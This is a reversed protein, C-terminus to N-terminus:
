PHAITVIRVSYLGCEAGKAGAAPPCAAPGLSPNCGHRATAEPSAQGDMASPNPAV